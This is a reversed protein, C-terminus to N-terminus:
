SVRTAIGNAVVNDAGEVEVCYAERLGVSTIEVIKDWFVDNKALDHLTRDELIAAARHLRSRSPAHKWMTSGCFKTQMADAFARHSMGTDTLGQRVRDWVERPITDVNESASVSTLNFLVEHAAFYKMGHADVVRLFRRQNVVGSVALQWSGRYNAKKTRHSRSTIGLRLLLLRVGEILERSTSGYYIRGMGQKEDWWVCGDTSWLHRLFLAIQEDPAAFVVSPLFKEYSRKDFLGLSDLWAAIPNRVGHTLRYPAPLRLTTVRAAAYDDRKATVGFHRAASTVARLNQEDISAYRIPQRAVCSGDGIMHALLVIEDEVMPQRRLPAPVRRPVAVRDGIGLEGVPAWGGLTLFQTDASADIERGSALPGRLVGAPRSVIALGTVPRATLRKRDDLAWVIAREGTSALDSLATECGNDARLLRSSAALFSLNEPV